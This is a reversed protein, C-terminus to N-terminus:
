SKDAQKSNNSFENKINGPIRDTLRVPEACAMVIVTPLAFVLRVGLAQVVTTNGIWLYAILMYIPESVLRTPALRNIDHLPREM